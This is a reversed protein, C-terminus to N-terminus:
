NKLLTAEGISSNNLRCRDGHWRNHNGINTETGCHKCKARKNVNAVMTEMSRPNQSLYAKRKNSQENRVTESSWYTDNAAKLKQRTDESVTRDRHSWADKMKLKTTESKSIGKLKISRIRKEEETLSRRPRSNTEKITKSFEKRAFEYQRATLRIRNKKNRTMMWLGHVMKKRPTGVTMKVLLLHCILHERSTLKVKNKPDESDGELWGLPGKRTRNIFFSEPIIHHTEINDAIVLRSRASEIISYYWKTYKNDLYM